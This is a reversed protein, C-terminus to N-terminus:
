LSRSAVSTLSEGSLRSVLVAMGEKAPLTVQTRGHAADAAVVRTMEWADLVEVRYRGDDPLDLKIFCPCAKGLYIFRCDESQLGITLANLRFANMADVSLRKSANVFVLYEPPVTLSSENIDIYNAMTEVTGSLGEVADRLFAIRAPSQGHLVGGKAWWLIEDDRHYTEGHGCGAGRMIAAWCRHVEEFASLNGWGPEIDGEYGCEDIVVPLGYEKRWLPIKYLDSSQVSVHTMWDRKPYLPLCNHNSILHHNPDNAAIYEGYADWDTEDKSAVCDYENALSWWVNPHGCLRKVAYALYTMNDERSMSAFGWRDYPHFLIIDAQIRLADLQNIRLELNSWFAEDPCRVDWSGDAGREFPVVSPENNNYLFAKPFVCM